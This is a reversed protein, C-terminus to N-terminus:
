KDGGPGALGLPTLARQVNALIEKRAVERIWNESARSDGGLHLLVQQRVMSEVLPRLDKAQAGVAATVVETVIGPLDERLVARVQGRVLDKVYARLDADEEAHLTLKLPM